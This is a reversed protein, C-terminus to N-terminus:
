TTTQQKRELEWALAFGRRVLFHHFSSLVVTILLVTPGSAAPQQRSCARRDTEYCLLHSNITNYPFGLADDESVRWSFFGM